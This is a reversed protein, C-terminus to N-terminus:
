ALGGSRLAKRDAASVVYEDLLSGDLYIPITIDGGQGQGQALLGMLQQIAMLVPRVNSAVAENLKNEPAVIEGHHRNDGIMALQPTNPGVYGGEALMPIKAINFGLSKGGYEPVWKPININLGNIGEIMKNIMGIISNIPTKIALKIQNFAGVIGDRIHTFTNIFGNKFDVLKGSFWTSTTQWVTRLFTGIEAWHQKIWIGLDALLGIVLGILAGVGTGIPGGLSGIIAGVGAGAMATGAPIIIGNIWNLGNMWADKIGVFAMPVGAIIAGIGAGLVTKGFTKGVLAAGAVFSASGIITQAANEFDFGNEWGDKLGKFELVAGITILSTGLKFLSDKIGALGAVLNGLKWGLIAAGVAKAITLVTELKKKFKDIEEQSIEMSEALANTGYDPISFSGGATGAISSTGDTSNNALINLNDFGMLSKLKKATKQAATGVGETNTELQAMGASLAAASDTEQKGYIQEMTAKFLVSFHVLKEMVKNLTQLLPTLVSIFGQGINAKFQQWQLSLVRLQNAWGDQTRLFDGSAGSLRELVFSYRLAVKEQETMKATTKGYGKELAYQDLAAQTMVVGLDKIAETEGTFVAKLKTFAVDSSLNYFSAVDGVLGTLSASMDYSEKETFGFSKSMAGMTGMYQKAVTESLGFNKIASSAFANVEKNMTTFTTDVVNQVEQLTSGLETTEKVFGAVARISFAAVAMKGIKSFTSAINGSVKASASSVAQNVAGQLQTKFADSNLILDLEIQGVNTKAM